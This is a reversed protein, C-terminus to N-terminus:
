YSVFSQRLQDCIQLAAWSPSDRLSMRPEPHVHFYRTYVHCLPRHGNHLHHIYDTHGVNCTQRFSLRTLQLGPLGCDRRGTLTMIISSYPFWIGSHTSQNLMDESTSVLVRIFTVRVSGIARVLSMIRPKRLVWMRWLVGLVRLMWMWVLVQLMWQM